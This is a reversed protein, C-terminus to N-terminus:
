YELSAYSHRVDHRGCSFCSSGCTIYPTSTMAGRYLYRGFIKDYRELDDVEDEVSLVKHRRRVGDGM